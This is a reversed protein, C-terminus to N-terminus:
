EFFKIPKAPCGVAVCKDPIDRVVVAGAGVISEAGITKGQIIQMGTGLEACENITVNGSVNASPYITAFDHLVVDHGITCAVNIIAHSGISINVTIIAGACIISGEGVTVKESCIAGPDVLTGFKILPFDKIYEIIKRRTKAAAVACVVWTEKSLKKLYDCGGLVPYGNKSTGHLSVDDDIFGRLNWTADTKNIREVLWAVERGFGGAGIIYLDKQTAM